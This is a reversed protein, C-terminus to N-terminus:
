NMETYLTRLKFLSSPVRGLFAKDRTQNTPEHLSEFFFYDRM